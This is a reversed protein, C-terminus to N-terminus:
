AKPEYVHYTWVEEIAKEDHLYECTPNKDGIYPGWKHWRWGGDAPQDVRRIRVFTVFFKEPREKLGLRDVAQQPTDCVGYEDFDLPECPQERWRNRLPVGLQDISWHGCVYMGEGIREPTVPRGDSIIALISALTPDRPGPFNVDVLM